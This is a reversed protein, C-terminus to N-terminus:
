GTAMVDRKTFKADIIIILTCSTAANVVDRTVNDDTVTVALM